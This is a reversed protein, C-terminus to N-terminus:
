VELRVLGLLTELLQHVLQALLQGLLHDILHRRGHLVHRRLVHLAHLLHEGREVLHDVLVRAAFIRAELLEHLLVAVEEGLIRLRELLQQLVDRLAHGRGLRHEVRHRGLLACLELLQRLLEHLVHTQLLLHRLQVGVHLLHEGPERPLLPVVHLTLIRHPELLGHLGHAIEAVEILQLLQQAIRGRRLLQGLGVHVTHAVQHTVVHGVGHVLQRLEHSMFLNSPVHYGYVCADDSPRFASWVMGTNKVPAGAGGHSLSDHAVGNDRHFRYQSFGRMQEARVLNKILEVAMWYQTDLHEAIGFVEHVRRALRLVSALSDLEYKREFVWDSQDPFDKHWCNGTPGPNFANAYRDLIVFKTQTKSVAALLRGIEPLRSHFFPEVQWTSDRLW